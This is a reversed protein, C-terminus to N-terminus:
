SQVFNPEDSSLFCLYFFLFAYKYAAVVEKFEIVGKDPWQPSPEFDENRKDEPLITEEHTKIRSIAGLSTELQTWSQLLRTLTTSITFIVNLAVGIQVGTMSAKFAIALSVVLVSLGAVLMDLVLTLWQQISLMM